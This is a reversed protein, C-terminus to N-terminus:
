KIHHTFASYGKPKTRDGPLLQRIRQETVQYHAATKKTGHEKRYAAVEALKEHTWKKGNSVGEDLPAASSDAPEREPAPEPTQYHQILQEDGIMRAYVIAAQRFVERRAWIHRVQEFTLGTEDPLPMEGVSHAKTTDEIIRKRLKEYSALTDLARAATRERPSAGEASLQPGALESDTLKRGQCFRHLDHRAYDRLLDDMNM